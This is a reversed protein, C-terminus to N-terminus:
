TLQAITERPDVVGSATVVGWIALGVAIVGLLLPSSSATARVSPRCSTCTTPRPGLLRADTVSGAFEPEVVADDDM